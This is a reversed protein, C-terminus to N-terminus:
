REIEKYLKKLKRTEFSSTLLTVEQSKKKRDTPYNHSLNVTKTNDYRVCTLQNIKGKFVSLKLYDVSIRM